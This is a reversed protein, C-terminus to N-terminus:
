RNKYQKNINDSYLINIIKISTRHAGLCRYLRYKHIFFHIASKNILDFKFVLILFYIVCNVNAEGTM